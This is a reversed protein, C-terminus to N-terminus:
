TSQIILVHVMIITAKIKSFDMQNYNVRQGTLYGSLRWKSNGVVM